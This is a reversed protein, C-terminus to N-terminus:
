KSNQHKGYENRQLDNALSTSTIVTAQEDVTRPIIVPELPPLNLITQRNIHEASPLRITHNNQAISLPFQYQDNTAVEGSINGQYMTNPIMMARTQLGLGASTSALSPLHNQHVSGSNKPKRKRTQIGEKKMSLPRNVSHLKFYLGCANCVPEGQNNRRWLTTTRTSCNACCVGSRRNGNTPPKKTTRVPPRNVGNIRNYLGCANCLYHGTGDRRWLPTISAGCNVCEKIEVETLSTEYTEDIQAWSGPGSSFNQYNINETGQHLNITSTSPYSTFEPTANTTTSVWTTNAPVTYQYSNGGHILTLQNNSSPGSQTSQLEYSGPFIRSSGLNPDNKYLVSNPPSEDAGRAITFNQFHQFSQGSSQQQLFQNSDSTFQTAQYQASPVSDLNTYEVGVKTDETQEVYQGDDIQIQTGVQVTATYEGHEQVQYEQTTVPYEGASVQVQDQFHTVEIQQGEYQHRSSDQPSGNGISSPTSAKVVEEEAVQEVKPEEVNEEITGATTIVQRRIIVSQENNGSNKEQKIETKVKGFPAQNEEM